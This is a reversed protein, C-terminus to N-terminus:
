IEKTNEKNHGIDFTLEGFRSIESAFHVANIPVRKDIGSYNPPSNPNIGHYREAIDFILYMADLLLEITALPSNHETSIEIIPMNSPLVDQRLQEVFKKERPSVLFVMCTTGDKCHNSGFIFRGHCYNRYDCVQASAMGSETLISEIDRAVPEGWSAYLVCYHQIKKPNPLLGRKNISYKYHREKRIKGSLKNIGSFAIYLISYTLIRSRISIFGDKYPNKYVFVNKGKLAKIVQNRESDNFTLFAINDMKPNYKLARRTAYIIDQNRGSSSILLIKSNRITEPSISAFELPTITRAVCYMMEYLLAPYSTHKGGNGICILPLHSEKLIWARFRSVDLEESFKLINDSESLLSSALDKGNTFISDSNYTVYKPTKEDFDILETDSTIYEWYKRITTLSYGTKKHIETKTAKPHKTLYKQCTDIINQKREYRRDLNNIKVYYRIVAESVNNRKANEKVSLSPNYKIQNSRMM